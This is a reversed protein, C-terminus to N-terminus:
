LTDSLLFQRIMNLASFATKDKIDKREGSLIFKESYTRNKTSLAIYVLGVPKFETGGEPGAIGTIGIGIQSMYIKRVKKAMEEAVKVSVAGNENIIKESIKLIKQKIENAYAVCSGMFYKSSGPINTIKSSLLGGSCSEAIALTLGNRLLLKGAVEEMTENDFGWIYKGLLEICKMEYYNIRQLAKTETGSKVIIKLSIQNNDPIISFSVGPDEKFLGSVKSNIETENIDLLKIIKTGTYYHRPIFNLINPLVFDETMQKIESLVGPMAFIIKKGSNFMLGPMIGYKNEIIKAGQPMLAETENSVQLKNKSMLKPFVSENLILPKKFVRSIIKKTVGNLGGTIIIIDSRSSAEKVIEEAYEAIDSVITISSVDLGNEYLRGALFHGSYDARDGSLLESGIIILEIRM